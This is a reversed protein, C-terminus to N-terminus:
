LYSKDILKIFEERTHEEEYKKQCEIKLKKDFSMDEETKRHCEECLPITFGNIMSIKRNRGGYIEHIHDKIKNCLYCKSFDDTLISYRKVELKKLKNSKNKIICTKRYEKFKCGRCDQYTIKKKHKICFFYKEYDKTRVKFNICNMIKSEQCIRRCKIYNYIYFEDM